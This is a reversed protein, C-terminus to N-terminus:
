SEHSDGRARDLQEELAHKAGVPDIMFFFATESSGTGTVQISGFNLLRGLFSQYVQISEVKSLRQESTSRSFLGFKAIVRRDTIVFDSNFYYVLADILRGFTVWVFVIVIIAEPVLGPWWGSDKLFKPALDTVFAGLVQALNFFFVAGLAVGFVIFRLIPSIFIAWHVRANYIIKEGPRLATDVYRPM